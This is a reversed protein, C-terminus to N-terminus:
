CGEESDDDGVAVNFLSPKNPEVLNTGSPSSLKVDGESVLVPAGVNALTADPDILSVDGSLAFVPTNSSGLTPNPDSVLSVDPDSSTRPDNVSALVVRQTSLLSIPQRNPEETIFFPIFVIISVDTIVLVGKTAVSMSSLPTLIGKTALSLTTM